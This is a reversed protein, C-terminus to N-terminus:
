ISRNGNEYYKHTESVWRFFLTAVITDMVTCYPGNRGVCNLSNIIGLSM